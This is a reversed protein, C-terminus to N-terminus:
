PSQVPVDCRARNFALVGVDVIVLTRKPSVGSDPVLVRTRKELDRGDGRQLGRHASRRPLIM